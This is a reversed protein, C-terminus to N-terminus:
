TYCGHVYNLSTLSSLRIAYFHLDGDDLQMIFLGRRIHFGEMDDMNPGINFSRLPEIRDKISHGSQEPRKM